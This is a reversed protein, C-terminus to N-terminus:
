RPPRPLPPPTGGPAMAGPVAPILATGYAVLECGAVKGEQRAGISSTEVRINCVSTAGLLRAEEVMRLIAERRAREQMRALPRFEGGVLKRWGARFTKFHDPAIVVSGSVLAGGAVALGPPPTRLDTLLFGGLAKERRALDEFHRREQIAGVMGGVLLLLFPSLFLLAAVGLVLLSAFFGFTDNPQEM